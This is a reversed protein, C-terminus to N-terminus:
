GYNFWDLTTLNEWNRKGYCSTGVGMSNQSNMKSTDKGFRVVTSEIKVLVQGSPGVSQSFVHNKWMLYPM